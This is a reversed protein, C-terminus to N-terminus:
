LYDDKFIQNTTLGVFKRFPCVVLICWNGGGVKNIVALVRGTVGTETGPFDGKRLYPYAPYRHATQSHKLRPFVIFVIFVIGTVVRLVKWSVAFLVFVVERRNRTTYGSM